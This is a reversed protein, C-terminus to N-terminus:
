KWIARMADGGTDGPRRGLFGCGLCCGKGVMAAGASCCFIVRRLAWRGEFIREPGRIM